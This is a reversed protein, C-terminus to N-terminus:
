LAFIDSEGGTEPDGDKRIVIRYDGGGVESLDATIRRTRIPTERALTRVVESRDARELFVSLTAERDLRWAGSLRWSVRKERDPGDLRIDTVSCLNRVSVNHSATKWLEPSEFRGQFNYRQDGGCNNNVALKPDYIFDRFLPLFCGSGVNCVLRMAKRTGGATRDMFRWQTRKPPPSDYQEPKPRTPTADFYVWGYDSGLWVQTMRHGNSCPAKEESDLLGNNNDDWKNPGEEMLTGVWRAPVGLFRMAGSVMVSTGSCAIIQSGDYPKDSLAIKLNGPNADYHRNDYDVTAPRGVERTPYYYHDQIYEVANRAAWYPNDMDAPVGYEREIYASVRQFFRKYTQEDSLNFLVPDDATYDMRALARTDKTVLHPYVFKRCSRTWFDIEYESTYVRPPGDPYRLSVMEQRSTRDSAPDYHFRHQQPNADASTDRVKETQPWIGQNPLQKASYPRSYNHSVEGMHESKANPKTKIAMRLHRLQKPGVAVAFPNRAVNVRHIVTSGDAATVAVWLDKAAYALGTLRRKPSEKDPSKGALAVNDFWEEEPPDREIIGNRPVPFHFLGRGTPADAVYVRDDGVSGWLYAAGDLSMFALRPSPAKGSDPMHKVVVPKAGPAKPWELVLVGRRARDRSRAAYSVFLRDGQCAVGLPVGEVGYDKGALDVFSARDAATDFAWLRSGQLSYFRAGGDSALGHLKKARAKGKAQPLKFERLSVLEDAGKTERGYVLVRGSGTLVGLQQRGVSKPLFTIGRVDISPAIKYTALSDGIVPEQPSGSMVLVLFATLVTTM